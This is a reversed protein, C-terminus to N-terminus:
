TDETAMLSSGVPDEDLEQSWGAVVPPGAQQSGRRTSSSSPEVFWIVRLGEEAHVGTPPPDSEACEDSTWAGDQSSLENGAGTPVKLGTQYKDHPNQRFITLQQYAVPTTSSPVSTRHFGAIIRNRTTPAAKHRTLPQTFTHCWSHPFLTCNLNCNFNIFHSWWRRPTTAPLFPYLKKKHPTCELPSDM